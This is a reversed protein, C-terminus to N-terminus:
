DRERVRYYRAPESCDRTVTVTLAGNVLIPTNTVLTWGNPDGNLDSTALIEAQTARTRDLPLGDSRALHLQVWKGGERCTFDQFKLASSGKAAVDYCHLVMDSRLYLRHNAISPPAYHVSSTERFSGCEIPAKPNAEFLFMWGTQDRYYLHGDAYAISGLGSRPTALASRYWQRKGTAFESCSLVEFRSGYIYGEVLVVGGYEANLEVNDYVTKSTIGADGNSLGIMCSALLLRNDSCIATAIGLGRVTSWLVAGSDAAMGRTGAQTSQIYLRRGGITLAMISPMQSGSNQAVACRWITAGDYKNLAVVTASASGPTALVLDGDVLPSECYGEYGARGGFDTVLDKQWLVRGTAAALCALIGRGGLAYVRDGDVTPTSCSGYSLSSPSNTEKIQTNWLVEGTSQDLAQVWESSSQAGICFVRGNAISPQGSGTGSIKATWLLPPGGTPWSKLFGTDLSIGDRGPGRWQPWDGTAPANEGGRVAVALMLCFVTIGMLRRVPTPDASVWPAVPRSRIM